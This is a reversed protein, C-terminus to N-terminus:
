RLLLAILQDSCYVGYLVIMLILSFGLVWPWETYRPKGRARMQQEFEVEADSHVVTRPM